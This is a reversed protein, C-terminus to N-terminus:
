CTRAQESIEYPFSAKQNSFNQSFILLFKCILYKKFLMDSEKRIHTKQIFAIDPNLKSLFSSIRKRKINGNLGHDNVSITEINGAM